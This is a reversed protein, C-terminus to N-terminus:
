KLIIKRESLAESDEETAKRDWNKRKNDKYSYNGVNLRFFVYYFIIGTFILGIFLFLFWIFGSPFLYELNCLGNNIKLYIFNIM